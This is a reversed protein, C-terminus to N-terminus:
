PAFRHRGCPHCQPLPKLLPHVAMQQASHDALNRLPLDISTAPSTPGIGQRAASPASRRPSSGVVRRGALTAPVKAFGTLAPVIPSAISM